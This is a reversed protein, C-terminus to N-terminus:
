VLIKIMKDIIQNVIRRFYSDDYVYVKNMVLDRPKEQILYETVIILDREKKKGRISALLMEVLGIEYELNILEQERRIIQSSLDSINSTQTRVASYDVGGIDTDEDGLIHYKIMNRRNVNEEHRRFLDKLETRREKNDTIYQFERVFDRKKM